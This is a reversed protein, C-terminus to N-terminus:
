LLFKIRGFFNRLVFREWSSSNALREHDDTLKAEYIQNTKINGLKLMVEISEPEWKDLQLSKVKSVHVGLSRHIGSCEICLLTGFNTSAWQPDLYLLLSYFSVM